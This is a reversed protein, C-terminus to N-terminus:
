SDLLGVIQVAQRSAVRVPKGALLEKGEIALRIYGDIATDLLLVDGPRISRVEALTLEAKGLIAIVTLPLVSIQPESLSAQPNDQRVLTRVLFRLPVIWDVPRQEGAIQVKLRIRASNDFPAFLRRVRSAPGATGLRLPPPENSPWTDALAEVFEGCIAELLAMELSTLPRAPPLEDVNDGLLGTVLAVAVRQDIVLASERTGELSIPVATADEDLEKAIEEFRATLLADREVSVEFPVQDSWRRACTVALRDLWQELRNRAESPFPDPHLFDYPRVTM